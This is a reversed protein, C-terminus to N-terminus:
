PSLFGVSLCRIENTEGNLLRCLGVCDTLIVTLAIEFYRLGGACGILASFMVIQPYWSLYDEKLTSFCWFLLCSWFASFLRCRLRIQKSELCVRWSNEAWMFHVNVCKAYFNAYDFASKKDALLLNNKRGLWYSIMLVKLKLQDIQSTM